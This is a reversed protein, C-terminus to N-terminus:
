AIETNRLSDHTYPQMQSHTKEAFTVHKNYKIKVHLEMNAPIIHRVYDRVTNYLLKRNLGLSIDVAYQSYRIELDYNGRGCINDLYKVFMYYTYAFNNNYKVVIASRRVDASNGGGTIGLMKEYRSLGRDGATQIWQSDEVEDFRRWEDAIVTDEAKAIAEIEKFERIFEPLYELYKKM